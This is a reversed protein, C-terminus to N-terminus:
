VNAPGYLELETVSVRDGDPPILYRAHFAGRVLELSLATGEHRTRVIRGGNTRAQRRLLATRANASGRLSFFASICPYTPSIGCDRVALEKPSASGRAAAPILARALRAMEQPSAAPAPMVLTGSCAAFAALLALNLRVDASDPSLAAGIM